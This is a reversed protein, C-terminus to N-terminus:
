TSARRVHARTGAHSKPERHRLGVLDMGRM